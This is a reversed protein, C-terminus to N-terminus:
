RVQARVADDGEWGTWTARPDGEKKAQIVSGIYEGAAEERTFGEALAERFGELGRVHPDPSGQDTGDNPDNADRLLERQQHAEITEQRRREDEDPDAEATSPTAAAAPELGLGKAFAQVAEKTLEGKYTTMVTAVLPDDTNYGAKLWALERQAQTGRSAAERLQKMNESEAQAQGEDTGADQENTQTAESM